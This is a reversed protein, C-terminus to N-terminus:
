PPFSPAWRLWERRPAKNLTFEHGSRVSPGMKPNDPTAFALGGRVLSDLRETPVKLFFFGLSATLGGVDWFKTNARILRAYPQNISVVLRVHRGNSSLSKREVRGVRVGRYYVPADVSISTTSAMVVVELDSQDNRWSSATAQRGVFNQVLKGKPGPLCDIYVGSVLTELGSVGDLSIRPRVLSFMSGQRRLIDYGPELRAIVEVKGNSATVEEVLGVPIGHYRLQTQGALFGQGDEFAIRIPPSVARAAHENSFLEFEAGDQVTGGPIGFVDFQVGGQLLTELGAVDVKLVGPGAQVSTAPLRWFRANRQVAREFEERIVVQLFPNRNEDLAKEKVSGVVIGRYLVPAGKAISPIEKARLVVSVGNMEAQARNWEEDTVTRGVFKEAPRGGSGPMSNIYVGSVLTDLGSVGELSIRPRVLTFITDVNQLVEYGPELRVVVEIKGNSPDAWVKEVLGVPLGRYCVRTQGALLGRGDDFSIQIPPASCRAASESAFLEFQTGNKVPNGPSEFVDFEVGGRLLAALGIVDLKVGGPGASMSTAPVSWFRSNSRVITKFEENIVAHLFPLGDEDFVKDEIEGVAVGRHYVTAGRVLFPINSARLKLVLAPAELPTLPPNGLGSFRLTPAGNGMRARLSNGQVIADLGSTEELSIVPQDIWFLSGERALDAAFAKLRVKVVVKSLDADLKVGTVKGADVGRYILLTKGAQLGPADDFQIEIEPGKSKWQSWFLWVVAGAALIPFIWAWSVRVGPREVVEGRDEAETDSEKTEIM